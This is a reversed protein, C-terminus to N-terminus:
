SRVRGIQFRDRAVLEVHHLFALGDKTEFRAPRAHRKRRLRLRSAESHSARTELRSSGCGGACGRRGCPSTWLYPSPKATPLPPNTNGLLAAAGKSLLPAIWNSDTARLTSANYSHIHVAVAGPRFRFGPDALPVFHIRSSRVVPQDDANMRVTWWKQDAFRARIPEAITDHYEERSIEEETACELGVLHDTPIQRMRGYFSALAISDAVKRNYVV